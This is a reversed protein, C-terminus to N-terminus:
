LFMHMLIPNSVTDFTITFHLGSLAETVKLTYNNDNTLVCSESVIGVKKLHSSRVYNAVVKSQICCEEWHLPQLLVSSLLPKLCSM